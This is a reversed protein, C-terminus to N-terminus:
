CWPIFLYTPLSARACESRQSNPRLLWCAPLCAPYLSAARARLLRCRGENKQGPPVTIQRAESSGRAALDRELLPNGRRAPAGPLWGSCHNGRRALKNHAAPLWPRGHRAHSTSHRNRGRSLWPRITWTTIFGARRPARGTLPRRSQPSRPVSQHAHKAGFSSRVCALGNQLRAARGPSASEGRAPARQERLALLRRRAAGPLGPPLGANAAPPPCTGPYNGAPPRPNARPPPPPLCRRSHTGKRQRQM